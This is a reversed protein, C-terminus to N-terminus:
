VIAVAGPSDGETLAHFEGGAPIHVSSGDLLTTDLGWWQDAEGIILTEKEGGSANNDGACGAFMCVTMMAAVLIALYRKM